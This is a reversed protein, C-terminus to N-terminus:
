IGPKVGGGGLGFNHIQFKNSNTQLSINKKLSLYTKPFPEYCVIHNFLHSLNIAYVGIHSGVVVLAGQTKKNSKTIATLIRSLKLYELVDFIYYFYNYFDIQNKTNGLIRYPWHLNYEFGKVNNNWYIRLLKRWLIFLRLFSLKILAVSVFRIITAFFRQSLITNFYFKKIKM